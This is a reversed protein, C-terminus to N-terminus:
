DVSVWGKLVALFSEGVTSGGLGSSADLAQRGLEEPDIGELWATISSSLDEGGDVRVVGVGTVVAGGTQELMVTPIAGVPADVAVRNVGELEDGNVWVRPAGVDTTDIRFDALGM